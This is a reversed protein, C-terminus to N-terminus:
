YKIIYNVSMNKPRTETDGNLNLTHSHNGSSSTYTHKTYGPIWLNNMFSLVRKNSSPGSHSGFQAFEANATSKHVLYPSSHSHSGNSTTNGNLGNMATADDQFTGVSTPSSAGRLFIAM